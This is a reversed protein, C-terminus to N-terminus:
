DLMFWDEDSDDKEYRIQEDDSLQDAAAGVLLSTQGGGSQIALDQAAQYAHIAEMSSQLEASQM